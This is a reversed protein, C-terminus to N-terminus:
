KDSFGEMVFVSNTVQRLSYSSFDQAADMGIGYFVEQKTRIQVAKETYIKKQDPLWIFESTRLTEGKLPNNIVVHGMLKYYNKVRDFRASDGRIQSTTNGLKDYFYLKVEKPYVRDENFLTQQKATVMRVVARASDSYIMDIGNLESKPGKYQIKSAEKREQCASILFLSLLYVLWHKRM